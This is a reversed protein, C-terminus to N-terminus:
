GLVSFQNGPCVTIEYLKATDLATLSFTWLQSNNTLYTDTPIHYVSRPGLVQVQQDSLSKLLELLDTEAIRM